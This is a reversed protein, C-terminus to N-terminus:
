EYRSIWLFNLSKLWSILLRKSRSLFAIVFRSLMNFFLSMVKGVFAWRTLAITKGITMYPLSLQVMFFALRQLISAKLSHYQLLSKLSRQVALLDFWDIRFSVLGSHKNSPNISFHFSWSKPWRICLASENSFGQHQSLSLALPSPPSLPHPPQIADDAWHVHTQAFEPLCHLVLFGTHQLGHHWFSDSM